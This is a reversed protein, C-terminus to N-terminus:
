RPRLGYRTDDHTMSLAVMRRKVGDPFEYEVEGHLSRFSEGDKIIRYMDGQISQNLKSRTKNGESDLFHIFHLLVEQYVGEERTARFVREIGTTM